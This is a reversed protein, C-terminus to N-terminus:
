YEFKIIDTNNISKKAFVDDFTVKIREKRALAACIFREHTFVIVFKTADIKKLKDFMNDVRHLLQNFSEAGKGHIFDPNNQAIYEEGIIKREAQTTGYCRDSDLYTFEHVDWIEVPVDPYMKILPGATQQTRLYPSVVILDPKEPIRRILDISQRIGKESLPIEKVDATRGGINGVSEAHRILYIM